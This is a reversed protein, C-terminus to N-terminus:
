ANAERSTKTVVDEANSYKRPQEASNLRENPTPCVDPLFDRSSKDALARQERVSM